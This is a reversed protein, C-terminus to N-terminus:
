LMISYKTLALMSLLVEVPVASGPVSSTIRSGLAGTWPQLYRAPSHRFDVPVGNKM